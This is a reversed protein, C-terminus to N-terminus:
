TYHRYKKATCTSQFLWDGIFGNESKANQEFHHNNLIPMMPEIVM